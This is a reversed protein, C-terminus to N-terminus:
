AKPFNWLTTWFSIWKQFYFSFLVSILKQPFMDRIVCMSENSTHRTNQNYGRLEQLKSHSCARILSINGWFSIEPLPSMVQGGLLGSKLGASKKKHPCRLHLTYALIVVNRRNFSFIWYSISAMEFSVRVLTKWFKRARKSFHRLLWPRWRSSKIKM